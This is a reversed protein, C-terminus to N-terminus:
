VRVRHHRILTAVPPICVTLPAQLGLPPLCRLATPGSPRAAVRLVRTLQPLPGPRAAVLLALRSRHQRLRVGVALVGHMHLHSITHQLSAMDALCLRHAVLPRSSPWPVFCTSTKRDTTRPNFHRHQELLYRFRSSLSLAPHSTCIM